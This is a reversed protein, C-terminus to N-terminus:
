AVPPGREPRRLYRPSDLFIEPSAVLRPERWEVIRPPVATAALPLSVGSAFLAIACGDELTRDVHHHLQEHLVPSAAFLGLAFVVVASGAALLRRFRDSWCSHRTPGM